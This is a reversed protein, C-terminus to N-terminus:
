RSEATGKNLAQEFELCCEGLAKIQCMADAETFRCANIQRLERSIKAPRGADGNQLVCTISFLAHM